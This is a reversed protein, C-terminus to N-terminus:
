ESGEVDIMLDGWSFVFCLIQIHKIYDFEFRDVKYGNNEKWYGFGIGFIINCWSLKHKHKITMQEGQKLGM